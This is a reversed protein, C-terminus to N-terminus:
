SEAIGRKGWLKAFFKEDFRDQVLGSHSAEVVEASNVSPQDICAQPDISDGIM